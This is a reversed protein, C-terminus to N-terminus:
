GISRFTCSCNEVSELKEVLEDVISKLRDSQLEGEAIVTLYHSDDVFRVLVGDVAIRTTRWDSPGDTNSEQLQHDISPAFIKRYVEINPARGIERELEENTRSGLHPFEREFDLNSYEYLHLRKGDVRHLQFRPWRRDTLRTWTWTDLCLSWDDINEIFGEGSLVEGGRIRIRNSSVEATHKHVWGPCDGSAKIVSLKFSKTDLKFVPTVGVQRSDKYGISGIIIISSDNDVPTASHFDTPPFVEESYGFIKLTGDLQEVIVDNYIYFDPDYFDEHEGAIWIVRGDALLTKSQGMRCGAWRPQGPYDIGTEFIRNAHYILEDESCGNGFPTPCTKPWGVEETRKRGSLLCSKRSLVSREVQHKTKNWVNGQKQLQVHNLLAFNM